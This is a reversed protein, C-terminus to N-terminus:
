KIDEIIKFVKAERAVDLLNYKWWSHLVLKEMTDENLSLIEALTVHKTAKDLTYMAFIKGIVSMARLHPIVM